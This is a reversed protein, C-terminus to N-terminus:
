QIPINIEISLGTMGESIYYSFTGKNRKIRKKINRIGNGKLADLEHIKCIGNDSINIRLNNDRAKFQVSLNDAKSHKLANTVIEYITLKVDRFLEGKLIYNKDFDLTVTATIESDACAANIFEQLEDTLDLWTHKARSISDLYTRFNYLAETLGNQLHEKEKAEFKERKSLLLLRTLITGSEDHLDMAIKTKTESKIRISRNFFLIFLFSLLLILFIILIYFGSQVYFPAKAHLQFSKEEVLQGFPDFMRIKLDYHGYSLNSLLIWNKKDTKFWNKSDITYQFTYGQTFHFDLNTLYIKVAEKGTNFSITEGDNYASFWKNKENQITEIGSIEFTSAYVYENLATPDIREFANLGGFVLQGNELLCASKCNFETNFIGQNKNVFHIAGSRTNYMTLGSYTSAWINKNKDEILSVVMQHSVEHEKTFKKRIKLSNMAFVYVGKNTATWIENSHPRILIDRIDCGSQEDSAVKEFGYQSNLRVCRLGKNTALYVLKTNKLPVVQHIVIGKELFYSFDSKTRPNYVVLKNGGALLMLSDSFRAISEFTENLSISKCNHSRIKKSKIDISILGKGETTCFLEDNFFLGDYTSLNQSTIRNLSEGNEELIYPFGLFYRKNKHEIIRRRVIIQDGKLFSFDDIRSSVAPMQLIKVVGQNTAILFCTENIRCLSKFQINEQGGFRFAISNAYFNLIPVRNKEIYMNKGSAEEHFYSIMKKDVFDPHAVFVNKKLIRVLDGNWLVLGYKKSKCFKGSQGDDSITIKKRISPTKPDIRFVEKNNLSIYLKGKHIILSSVDFVNFKLTFLTKSKVKFLLTGTEFLIATTDNSYTLAVPNSSYIKKFTITKPQLEILGDGATLLYLLTGRRQIKLIRNTKFISPHTLHNFNIFNLGDYRSLGNETAIWIYGQQDKVIDNIENHPLGSSIDFPPAIGQYYQGYLSSSLLAFYLFLSLRCKKLFHSKFFLKIIRISVVLSVKKEDFPKNIINKLGQICM